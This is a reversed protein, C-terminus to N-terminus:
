TASVLAELPALLVALGDEVIEEQTQVEGDMASGVQRLTPYREEPLASIWQRVGSWYTANHDWGVRGPYRLACGLLFREIAALLSVAQRPDMGSEILVSYLHENIRLQGPTPVNGPDLLHLGPYSILLRYYRRLVEKVDEVPPTGAPPFEVQATLHDLIALLLEDKDRFHRYLSMANVRLAAAVSRMTLGDLGVDSLLGVAAAVIGDRSLTGRPTRRKPGSQGTTM